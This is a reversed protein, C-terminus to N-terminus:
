CSLRMCTLSRRFIATSSAGGVQVRFTPLKGSTRWRPVSIGAVVAFRSSWSSRTAIVAATIDVARQPLLEFLILFDVEGVAHGAQSAEAAVDELLAARHAHDDADDRRLNPGEFLEAQRRDELLDGIFFPTQHQHGAGGAAALRRRQGRHDIVDIPGTRHVHHRDLIRDFEQM